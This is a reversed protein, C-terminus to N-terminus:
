MLSASWFRTSAGGADVGVGVDDATGGSLLDFCGDSVVCGEGAVVCDDLGDDGGAEDVDVEGGAACDRDEVVVECWFEGM